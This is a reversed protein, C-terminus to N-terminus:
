DAVNEHGVIGRGTGLKKPSQVPQRLHYAGHDSDNTGASGIREECEADCIVYQAPIEDPAYSHDDAQDPRRYCPCDLGFVSVSAKDSDNLSTSAHMMGDSVVAPEQITPRGSASLFRGPLRILRLGTWKLRTPRTEDRKNGEVRM